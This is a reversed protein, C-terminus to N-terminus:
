SLLQTAWTCQRRRPRQLTRAMQAGNWAACDASGGGQALGEVLELQGVLKSKGFVADDPRKSLRAVDAATPRIGCGAIDAIDARPLLVQHLVDGFAVCCGPPM